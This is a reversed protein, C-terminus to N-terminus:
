KSAILKEQYEKGNILGKALLKDLGTYYQSKVQTFAAQSIKKDSLSLTM